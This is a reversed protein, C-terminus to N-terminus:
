LATSGTRRRRARGALGVGVLATGLVAATTPEPVGTVEVTDLLGDAAFTVVSIDSFRVTAQTDDAIFGLSQFTWQTGGDGLLTYSDDTLVTSGDGGLVEAHLASSTGPVATAGFWFTVEYRDGPMTSFVQSLVASAPANLYNFNVAYTGDHVRDPSYSTRWMLAPNPQGTDDSPTFNITWGSFDGTEFGGNTLLSAQALAPCLMLSLVAGISIRM